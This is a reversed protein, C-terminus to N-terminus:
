MFKHVDGNTPDIDLILNVYRRRNAPDEECKQLLTQIDAAVGIGPLSHTVGSTVSQREFKTRCYLCILYRGAEEFEQAGCRDCNVSKM